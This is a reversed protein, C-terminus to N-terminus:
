NKTASWKINDPYKYNSTIKKYNSNTLSEFFSDIDDISDDDSEEKKVQTNLYINNSIIKM